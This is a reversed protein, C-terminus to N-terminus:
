YSNGPQDIATKNQFSRSSVIGPPCAYIDVLRDVAHRASVTSVPRLEFSSPPVFSVLDTVLSAMDPHIRLQGPYSVYAALEPTAGRNLAFTPKGLMLGELTTSGFPEEWLSPVVIATALATMELTKEPTCWGLFRISDSEFENRLREADPGDGAITLVVHPAQRARFERLFSEVGKVAYLKGAIFVNVERKQLPSKLVKRANEISEEDLFHHMVSGWREGQGGMTRAFNRRLMDSVFLTKHRSFGDAVESRYRKVAITSVTKQIANPHATQCHACSSANTATCIQDHKFRTNFLCDSGHDHRTQVFNIHSPIYHAVNPAHGHYHVVDYNDAHRLIVRAFRKAVWTRRSPVFAGLKSEKWGKDHGNLEGFFNGGFHGEEGIVEIPHADGGLLDVEHGAHVLARALNLVHKALGGMQPYPIDESVLLIRM